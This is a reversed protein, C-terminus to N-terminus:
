GLQHTFLWLLALGVGSIIAWRATEALFHVFRRVGGFMSIALTAVFASGVALWIEFEGLGSDLAAVFALYSVGAALMFRVLAKLITSGTRHPNPAPKATPAPAAAPPAPLAAPAALERRLRRWGEAEVEARLEQERLWDESLFAPRSRQSTM